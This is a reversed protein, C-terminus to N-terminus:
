INNVHVEKTAVLFFPTAINLESNYVERLLHMEIKGLLFGVICLTLHKETHMTSDNEHMRIGRSRLEDDYDDNM